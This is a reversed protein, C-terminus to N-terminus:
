AFVGRGAGGPIPHIRCFGRSQNIRRTKLLKAEVVNFGHMQGAVHWVELHMHGVALKVVAAMQM